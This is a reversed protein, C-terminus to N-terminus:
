VNFKPEGTFIHVRGLDVARELLKDYEGQWTEVKRNVSTGLVVEKHVTLHPEVNGGSGSGSIGNGDVNVGGSSGTLSAM